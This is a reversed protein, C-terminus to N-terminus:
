SRTLARILSVTQFLMGFASGVIAVVLVIRVVPAWGVFSGTFDFPFVQWIRVLAAVGVATTLLNGLSTLWRADYGVYVLNAVIGAVISANLVPLVQRTADTLFDLADWGPWVNVVYLLGANVLVASLYGVRKAAASLRPAPTTTIM